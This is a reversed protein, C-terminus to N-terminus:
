GGDVMIEGVREIVEDVREELDDRAHIYFDHADSIEKFTRRM